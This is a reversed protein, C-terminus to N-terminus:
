SPQQNGTPTRLQEPRERQTRPRASRPDTRPKATVSTTFHVAVTQALLGSTGVRVPRPVSVRSTRFAHASPRGWTVTHLVEKASDNMAECKPETYGVPMRVSAKMGQREAQARPYRSKFSDSIGPPISVRAIAQVRGERSTGHRSSLLSYVPRLRDFPM